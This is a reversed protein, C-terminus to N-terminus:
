TQLAKQMERGREVGRRPKRRILRVLTIMGLTFGLGTMVGCFDLLVDSVQSGRESLLQLSEDLVAVLLGILLCKLVPNMEERRRLLTLLGLEMGLVAFEVFHAIKRVLHDTVNGEGVFVELYPTVIEMVSLSKAQSEEISELSNGWIFLFTSLILITVITILIKKSKM